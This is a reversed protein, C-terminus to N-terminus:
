APRRRRCVPILTVGSALIALSAPEPVPEYSVWLTGATVVTDTGEHDDVMEHLEMYLLGDELTTFQASGPVPEYGLGGWWSSVPGFQGPEDFLSPAWDAYGNSSFVVIVFESQWSEGLAEFQLDDYGFGTVLSGAGINASGWSNDPHGFEGHSQAGALDFWVVDASAPLASMLVFSAAMVGLCSVIKM